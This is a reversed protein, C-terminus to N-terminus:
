RAPDGWNRRWQRLDGVVRGLCHRRSFRVPAPVVSKGNRYKARGPRGGIGIVDLIVSWLSHAAVTYLGLVAASWVLLCGATAMMSSRALNTAKAGFQAQSSPDIENLWLLMASVRLGTLVSKKKYENKRKISM